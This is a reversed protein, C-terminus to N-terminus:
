AHPNLGEPPLLGSPDLSFSPGHRSGSLFTPAWAAGDDHAAPQSDAGKEQDAKEVVPRQVRVDVRALRQDVARALNGAKAVFPTSELALEGVRRAVRCEHALRPLEPEHLRALPKEDDLADLGPLVRM